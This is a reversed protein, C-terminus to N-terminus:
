PNADISTSLTTISIPSRTTMFARFSWPCRPRRRRPRGPAADDQRVARGGAGTARRSPV